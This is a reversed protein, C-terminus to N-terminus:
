LSLDSNGLYRQMWHIEWINNGKKFISTVTPLDNNPKGKYM